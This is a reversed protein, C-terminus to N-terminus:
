RRPGSAGSIFDAMPTPAGAEAAMARFLGLDKRGIDAQGANMVVTKEVLLRGYSQYIPAPFLTTTLMAVVAEPDCGNAEAAALGEALSRAAAGIMFNGVLKVTTAAGVEEGFDFVGAAGMAELIPRVRAKAAAPGACAIWLQRAVAAEPRGFVPAEVFLCGREAHMAALRRSGAPSITSMSVHVGGPGLADLFGDRAVVEEVSADDWLLTVVIGGPRVADVSRDARGAGRAVLGDAKAATRNHVLLPYGAALLNTAIPAGLAGLGIFGILEAM